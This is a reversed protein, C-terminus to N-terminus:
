QRGLASRKATANKPHAPCDPNNRCKEKGQRTEGWCPRGNPWKAQCMQPVNSNVVSWLRQDQAPSLAKMCGECLLMHARLKSVPQDSLCNVCKQEYILDEFEQPDQHGLANYSCISCKIM